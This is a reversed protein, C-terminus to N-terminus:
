IDFTSLTGRFPVLPVPPIRFPRPRDPHTKRMVLGGGCLLVFALLTGISTMKGVVSIPAFAAFIGVFIMLILNSKYPTRFKPHVDSSIKPVLGDNYMTYFVRSHAVLM